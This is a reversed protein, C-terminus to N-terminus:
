PIPKIVLSPVLHFIIVGVQFPQQEGYIQHIKRDKSNQHTRTPQPECDDSSSKTNHSIEGGDFDVGCQQHVPRTCTACRM